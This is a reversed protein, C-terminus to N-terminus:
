HWQLTLTTNNETSTVSTSLLKGERDLVDRLWAADAASTRHLRM